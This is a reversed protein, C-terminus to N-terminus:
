KHLKIKWYRGAQYFVQNMGYMAGVRYLADKKTKFLISAGAMTVPYQRSGVADIGIYFQAKSPQSLTITKIIEPISLDAIVQRNKIRNRTITDNIVVQGYKVKNTDSYYYISNYDDIQAATDTEAIITFDEKTGNMPIIVDDSNTFKLKGGKITLSHPVPKHWASTDKAPRWATDIKIKVVEPCPKKSCKQIFIIVLLVAIAGIWFFREKKM